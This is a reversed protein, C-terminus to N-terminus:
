VRRTVCIWLYESIPNSNNLNSITDNKSLKSTVYVNIYTKM